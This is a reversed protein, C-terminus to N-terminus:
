SFYPYKKLGFLSCSFIKITSVSKTLNWALYKKYNKTFCKARIIDAEIHTCICFPKKIIWETPHNLCCARTNNLLIGHAIEKMQFSLKHTSSSIATKKSLFTEFKLISYYLCRALRRDLHIRLSIFISYQKCLYLHTVNSFFTAISHTTSWLERAFLLRQLSKRKTLNRNEGQAGLPQSSIHTRVSKWRMPCASHQKAMQLIHKFM